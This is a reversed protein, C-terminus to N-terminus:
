TDAYLLCCRAAIERAAVARVRRTGRRSFLTIAAAAHYHCSAAVLPTNAATLM